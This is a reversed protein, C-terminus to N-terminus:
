SVAVPVKEHRPLKDHVEWSMVDRNARWAERDRHELESRMDERSVRHWENSHWTALVPPLTVPTATSDAQVSQPPISRWNLEAGGMISRLTNVRATVTTDPPIQPTSALPSVPKWDKEHPLSDLERFTVAPSGGEQSSYAAPQFTAPVRTSANWLVTDIATADRFRHREVSEALPRGSEAATLVPYDWLHWHAPTVQPLRTPQRTQIRSSTELSGSLM